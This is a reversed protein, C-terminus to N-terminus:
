SDACSCIVDRSSLKKESFQISAKLFGQCQFYIALKSTAQLEKANFNNPQWYRSNTIIESLLTIDERNGCKNDPKYNM